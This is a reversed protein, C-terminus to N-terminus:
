KGEVSIQELQQGIQEDLSEIMQDVEEKLQRRSQARRSLYAIIDRDNEPPGSYWGVARRIGAPIQDECTFFESYASRLQAESLIGGRFLWCAPGFSLPYAVLAVVVVVTAWYAPSPPKRSPTMPVTEM